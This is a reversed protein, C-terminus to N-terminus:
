LYFKNFIAFLNDQHEQLTMIITCVYKIFFVVIIAIISRIRVHNLADWNQLTTKGLTTCFIHCTCMHLIEQLRNANEEKNFQNSGFILYYILLPFFPLIPLDSQNNYPAMNLGYSIVIIIINSASIACYHGFPWHMQYSM